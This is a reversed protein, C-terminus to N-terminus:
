LEAGPTPSARTRRVHRDVRLEVQRRLEPENGRVEIFKEKCDGCSLYLSYGDTYPIIQLDCKPCFPIIEHIGSGDKFWKWRWVVNFFTDQVYAFYAPQTAASRAAAALVVLLAVWALLSLWLVGFLWRPHTTSATVWQWASDAWGLVSAWRVGLIGAVILGGIVTAAVGGVVTVKWHEKWSM